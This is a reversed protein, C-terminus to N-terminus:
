DRRREIERKKGEGKADRECSEGGKWGKEVSSSQYKLDMLRKLLVLLWGKTEKREGEESKKTEKGRM